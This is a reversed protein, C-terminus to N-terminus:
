WSRCCSAGVDGRSDVRAPGLERRRLDLLRNPLVAVLELLHLASEQTRFRGAKAAAKDAAYALFTVGSMVIYGGLLMPAVIVSRTFAVLLIVLLLGLPIWTPINMVRSDSRAAEETLRGRQRMRGRQSAYVCM